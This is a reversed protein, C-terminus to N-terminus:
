CGKAPRRATWPSCCAPRRWGSPSRPTPRTASGTSSGGAPDATPRGTGPGPGSCSRGCGSITTRRPIPWRRRPRPPPRTGTHARADCAEDVAPPSFILGPADGRGPGSCGRRASRGGGDIERRRAPGASIGPRGPRSPWTSPLDIGFEAARARVQDLDWIALSGDSVGLALRAGEPSWAACWIAGSEPPLTVLDRGNAADLIGVRGPAAQIALWRGDPSPRVLGGAQRSPRFPEQAIGESWAWAGITGDKRIYLLRDGAPDFAFGGAHPGGELGPIIAIRGRDPDYRLVRGSRGLVAMSSGSPHVALSISPEVQSSNLPELAVRGSDRRVAWVTLWDDGQAALYRGAPDFALHRIRPHGDPMKAAARVEGSPLGRVQILGQWDGSALLSGDPSFSLGNIPATHGGYTAVLAGTRADWLKVSRDHSSSALGRGDPSFAVAAVGSRHGVLALREPTDRIPWAVAARGGAAPIALLHRGDTSFSIFTADAPARFSALPRNTALSWLETRGLDGSRAAMLTGAPHVDLSDVRDGVFTSWPELDPVTWVAIGEECGAVLKSGDATFKLIKVSSM